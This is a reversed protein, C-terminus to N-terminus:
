NLTAQASAKWEYWTGDQDTWSNPWLLCPGYLPLSHGKKPTAPDGDLATDGPDLGVKMGLPM